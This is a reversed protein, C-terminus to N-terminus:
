KRRCRDGSLLELANLGFIREVEDDSYGRGRMVEEVRAIDRCDRQDSPIPIWGDYDSGIAVHRVGVRDVVYDIHDVIVESTARLRGCLFPPAFMIGIVGDLEAIADVAEDSLNRAHQHVGKVGTHTCFVPTSAVACADLVGPMNVHALDVIVSAEQLAAVLDRGFATLGESENAGRGMSPSCASNRSFHTLTLYVVGLDALEHVREIRGNLMHAGEVGPALALLGQETAERWDDPERVRCVRPDDAIVDDLYAIQKRAERWGGESEWPWYHIGLCAGRYNAEIMRPVDAHWFLPQGRFGARHERTARYGFLRQQIISDVHLDLIM